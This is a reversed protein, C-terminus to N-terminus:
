RFSRCSSIHSHIIHSLMDAGYNVNSKRTLSFLLHRATCLENFHMKKRCELGSNGCGTDTNNIRSMLLPISAIQLIYHSGWLWLQLLWLMSFWLPPTPKKEGTQDLNQDSCGRKHIFIHGSTQGTCGSVSKNLTISFSSTVGSIGPM